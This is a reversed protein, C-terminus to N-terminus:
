RKPPIDFKQFEYFDIAMMKENLEPCKLYRSSKGAEEVMNQFIRYSVVDAFGRVEGEQLDDSQISLVLKKVDNASRVASKFREFFDSKLADLNDLMFQWPQSETKVSALPSLSTAINNIRENVIVLAVSGVHFLISKKFEPYEKARKLEQTIAKLSFWALNTYQIARENMKTPTGPAGDFVYSEGVIKIPRDYRYLCSVVGGSISDQYKDQFIIPLVASQGEQLRERADDAVAISKSRSDELRLREPQRLTCSSVLSIGVLLTTIKHQSISIKHLLMKKNSRM